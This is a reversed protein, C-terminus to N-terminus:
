ESDAGKAHRCRLGELPALAEGLAGWKVGLEAGGSRNFWRVEIRHAGAALAIEGRREVTGHLGDNDVVLVDDVWLTSGDDSALAFTYVDDQPAKLLGEFVLAINERTAFEGLALEPVHREDIPTLLAPDPVREWQGAYARRRIGDVVEVCDWLPIDLVARGPEVKEFRREVVSSVPADRHFARARVKTTRELKLPTRYLASDAEPESGDLTYRLELGASKSELRVELPRVFIDSEAVIEPARYVIPEGELGLTVVSAISDPLTPPLEIVVDSGERHVPLLNRPGALWGASRLENGLGPLVLRGDAPREFVHLYLVSDAGQKKWTCRGWPLADFPSAQTGHIAEGHKAMWAGIGQLREIAEDPFTGDPKPGVNLLYNGGKSVVDILNQVLTEVSKWDPDSKNWGWHDNMTMCTEWDVGPLGSAPIEQEPTGFDGVAESAQSFGAMGGRYVDVRNNVILEPDLSRCLNYLEVGREHTWTSEWEGDFWMVGPKYKTIVERVQAQLYDEFREFDAGEVSRGTEWPRRPLYDPHHWDMISHYTAFRVGSEACAASLEALIDRRFPTGMVDWESVASDFLAFGDHHKSTIVLYKMGAERALAVWQQADFRTPNFEGQFRAYEELPIRASDRIWEGYDTGGRWEGAPIAYLGWHLFMGFRAERWWDLRPDPGPALESPSGPAPEPAQCACLLALLFGTGSRCLSTMPALKRGRVLGRLGESPGHAARPSMERDM